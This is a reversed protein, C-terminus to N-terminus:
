KKPQFYAWGEPETTEAFLTAEIERIVEADKIHLEFLEVVTPKRLDGNDDELHRMRPHDAGRAEGPIGKIGPPHSRRM